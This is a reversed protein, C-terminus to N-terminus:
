GEENENQAQNNNEGNYINGDQGIYNANGGDQSDIVIEESSYDFQTWAWLWLANSAFILAIAVIIAIWMRKVQREARVMAQEHAIYPVDGVQEKVEKEKDTQCNECGM